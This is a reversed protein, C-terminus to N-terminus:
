APVEYFKSPDPIIPLMNVWASLSLKGNTNVREWILTVEEGVAVAVRDFAGIITGATDPTLAAPVGAARLVGDAGVAAGAANTGVLARLDGLQLGQSALSALTFAAPATAVLASLLTEDAARAIGLAVATMIESLLEDAKVNQFDSRNLEIRFAKQISNGWDKTIDARSIPLEILAADADEAVASFEVADVNVFRGPTREFAVGDTSKDFRLANSSDKRVIVHAGARAVLSNAIVAGSLTVVEGALAGAPAHTVKGSKDFLGLLSTTQLPVIISRKLPAPLYGTPEHAGHPTHAVRGQAYLAEHMVRRLEVHIASDRVAKLAATRQAAARRTERKALLSELEAPTYSQGPVIEEDEFM